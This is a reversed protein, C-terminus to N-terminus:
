PKKDITATGEQVTCSAQLVECVTALVDSFDRDAHWGTLTEEALSSDRVEIDIDYERELEAVADKLPTSQFVIFRRLWPVMSGVDAVKVPASTTGRSVRSMEGAKVVVPTGAAGFAVSGELVVLRLDENESRLEFRTGLVVAEGAQTRVRFPYDPMEVVSFYATGTLFIERSGEVGPIRIRSDPALRVVTGDGLVVTATESPGTVFEGAGFQFSDDHRMIPSFVLWAIAAAAAVALGAGWRVGKRAWLAPRAEFHWARRSARSVLSLADPAQPAPAHLLADQAVGVLWAVEQYRSENAESASRWDRLKAAEAESVQGKLARSILEEM